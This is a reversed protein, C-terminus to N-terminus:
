RRQAELAALRAKLLDIAIRQTDLDGRQEELKRQQQQVENLLLVSLTEYHVTDVGGDANLVALAPFVDAVEEAVLGYQLPKAGDAYAHAYRFTVPRLAFLARSTEGMDRIDEKFRRSSSVTGLQGASDILVPVADGLGTTIGRIGAIVTKTQWGQVGLYITDSEGAVGVVNAGLYINNSGTTANLGAQMGIAVNLDGTTNSYLAWAGSATNNIGTANNAFASVGNATNATGTTNHFLAGNGTATNYNGTTNFSLANPGTATNGGGTTNSRLASSGTATNQHGTTNSRLASVGTATNSLGTTNYILAGGGTATNLEGTTNSYLAWSGTATNSSGTTNSYLAYEGSATNSNGASNLGLASTGIATNGAGFTNFNGANEGLFTNHMAGVNHLFRVGGKWISGSLDVDGDARVKFRSVSGTLFNISGGSAINNIRYEHTVNNFGQFQGLAGFQDYFLMGSYSTATAGLNQVAYGTFAGNTNLFRVHLSDFPTTTGIGVAGGAEYVASNAVEDGTVYKALFNPTGALVADAGAPSGEQGSVASTTPSEHDAPTPALAYASAPRGGLTEADASRLAYPVSTIRTRPREGDGSGAFQMGLWQAEGSAFVERPIGDPQSAGFLLSFRGAKDVVVNQMEQWLPAGGTEEAYVALTVTEVPAAPLGTAPTFTGTVLVLRPVTMVTAAPASAPQAHLTTAAFLCPWVMAIASVIRQQNRSM